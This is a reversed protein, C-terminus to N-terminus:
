CSTEMLSMINTEAAPTEDTCNSMMATRLSESHAVMAGELQQFAGLMENRESIAQDVQVKVAQALRLVETEAVEARAIGEARETEVSRLEEQTKIMSEEMAECKSRSTSRLHALKEEWRTAQRGLGSLDAGIAAAQIRNDEVAKHTAKVERIADRQKSLETTVEDLATIQPPFHNTTLRQAYCLM